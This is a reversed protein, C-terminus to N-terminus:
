LVPTNKLCGTWVRQTGNNLVQRSSDKHQDRNTRCLAAQQPAPMGNLCAHSQQQYAAFGAHDENGIAAMANSQRWIYRLISTPGQLLANSCLQDSSTSSAKALIDSSLSARTTREIDVM